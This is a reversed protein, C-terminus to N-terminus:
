PATTDVPGQGAEIAKSLSKYLDSTPEVPQGTASMVTLNVHTTEGKRILTAQAKGIGAFSRAFNECDVLSVIRDMTLVTLPANQRANDRDEPDAVGTPAIPNTVGRVGLPRGMILSIQSENLMGSTGIGVRYNAIINEMGSPPRAGRIGDGFILCTQGGDDTRTIYAHDTRKLDYLWDVERWLYMM